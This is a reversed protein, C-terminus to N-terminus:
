VNLNSLPFHTKGGVQRHQPLQTVRAPHIGEEPPRQGAQTEGAAGRPQKEDPLRRAEGGPQRCKGHQLPLLPASSWFFPEPIKQKNWPESPPDPRLNGNTVATQSCTLHDTLLNPVILSLAFLRARRDHTCFVFLREDCILNIQDTPNSYKNAGTVMNM